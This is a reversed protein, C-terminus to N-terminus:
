RILSVHGTVLVRQDNATKKFEIRWTYVGDQALKQGAGYTGDWGISDDHSEWIIEGWRNFILLEFDYPDYGSTFIAQFYENFSDGDPTFSNPVYFILEEVVTIVMRATDTCGLPSYAILEVQYGGEDIPFEYTPNEITTSSLDDGFTWVYNDAGVSTNEFMVETDITTLQNSSPVFSAIPTEEVYIYDTYTVSSVCGTGSTTTLTVDYTGSNQFTYTVDGCGNLTEGNITWVCNTFGSVSASTNTFTVTLPECGSLIDGVFSVIPAPEVTITIDDTSICGENDATVTYTTTVVPDFPGVPVVPDWVTPVGLPNDAVITVFDGECVVQDPGADIPAPVALITIEHTVLIQNGCDDTVSYTRTIKELNCINGDSVDSVWVVVPNATCNDLEDIVVLPNPVPVDNSGPVSIPAPDSATPPTVDNVIISQDVTIQNGCDDMISYTRTITEPCSLGDSVDGVWAVTPSATCNDAETTIDLVDWAPVDGICEVNVNAPAVGTPNTIDNVIILQDVTIQNGCDDTISYTRTITEPCSLGDSVDGVFAVTPTVTCNDAETTIDLINSVPVDGICEVNVNAPAVGTPNTVDNVTILQDVTIQNGCDDTISYTRTITEPCSLGDSVDGIFAVIPNATCNDAETTIDLINSVPVDGICEVNVNAPALGTPNTVDNVTILQDVTIQNGCDDTISYTRTITEPCSLGDSVDGVFAVTPNATCNDAETTIDLINPVPVDGICEVNANAPAVGTPNTVDNVIILQDVTIQNGCDDTISYTRTITEPCSLGDSVDGEFAVIPNATCNDAETTINLVNPVPVDGICEVNVNAPAVGTPNTVDLVTILQTVLVVNGCLDTISYTRTITEPCTLGDSVDSVFAVVPVGQNDAEDIILLPDAAPVDGICEVNVAAPATGTPLIPDTIVVLHTVNITNGCDDTISYIRTITEPCPNNDSVESVFAVVPNVTCNDAEDIVVLPDVAPAPGGPVTATAPNSATPLTTDDVTITQTVTANNGCADTFTWTRTITGGCAGGTLAGDAGTVTGAGDCNDTWGLDTMAPVDGTCEVTLDAPPVAFVPVQTDQVTITQTVTANNGCADTFTWTRTITEPCTLGDSLDVGTVTGPADCNDTYGLDIMAPVDGVCQVAVAAPTGAIVPVQTDQVTITQTVTASVNGCADTHFWSRTITEPCTLGDSVDAGTVTGAADCNDTFGLDTMVPVDGICQVAVAAPPANMIPATIDMVTITQTVFIFNGCDDTVRYRRLITEPCTLGDSTDDEWTVVPLAGNDSEDTVVTPDTAPVDGICEVNAPLPDSATPIILDGVTFMQTVLIQNGCADTVSYTRTIIEPCVGGDSVDGVWAVVPIGCNDAEDTVVTPDAAPPAGGAGPLNSATPPTTDDVTITQTVTANNGCADTYTWTRTITGGCPGGILAGDAGTVDGAGDCNDTWGLDTMAPVDGVCEVTVDAPPATFVPVQTDQITITQTVIANNGCADTFTWTRTITEPCTLGDSVDAGTVTGPADCNDTYGLDIMAPVDGSCQVAIAAPTGAIVPAQTDNVTITQNVTTAVNGCADTWTWSRTITEPCTLGDSVDVGVVTGAPDCNDTYGLNTMAPVDGSCQVAVAAPPANMVPVTVDMVTITQTVFIFNGCDDTVRYRRLITEPCALGDSTDDEWTVTPLAGNDAEDIVVTPDTAPVDVQCEVNVAVPDSATPLVADGVTYIETVLIQNACADTVSYTRTIIEPCNGGDSADSVWAVIPIGCNDAEDMVVTPDPPPPNGTQGPLNSATPPTTDDVTITQTVTAVNGCADTYTWTRTITGGCPDTLAGDVGTVNGAGDCNDTWGLDTMVPVDGICEVTLNAPPAAFVPVQTDQITITQTETAVNGCADTVTWTRTITEPCTLGDSVDAGVVNGAADCNDTYNLNIMAPVDGACQVAVAAPVGSFVPAQTDDIIITQTVTAAVNGCGDIWTWSRTITEPCSLGDSVDVGAVTGAPDCNDTYGLNIMAPVDGSCQVAVAAPPANMVPVQTDNVTIIQTETDTNGCGDTYTWTRTITGGCNGGILPGDSGAVSGAGDCNDTWALNVMAPIAGCQVTIAAPPAVLVPPTVDGIIILQQVDTFNGCDDTIRYTRTITEPCNLGDSVDGQYTVVPNCPSAEDTVVLPDAAPAGGSCEVNINPPNSGTPMTTVCCTYPPSTLFSCNAPLAVQETFVVNTTVDYTGMTWEGDGLSGCPAGPVYTTYNPPTGEWFLNPLVYIEIVSNQNYTIGAAALDTEDITINFGTGTMPGQLLIQVGDVWIAVYWDDDVSIGAPDPYCYGAGTVTLDFSTANGGVTNAPITTNGANNVGGYPSDVAVPDAVTTTVDYTIPGLAGGTSCCDPGGAVGIYDITFDENGGVCTNAPWANPDPTITFVTGIDLLDCDNQPSIDWQCTGANWTVDVVDSAQTAIQPYVTVSHIGTSIVQGTEDCVITWPLDINIPTCFFTNDLTLQVSYDACNGITSVINGGPTNITITSSSIDINVAFIESISAGFNGTVPGGIVGGLQDEIQFFGGVGNYGDGWSDSVVFEFINGEINPDLSVNVNFGAGNTGPGGSAVVNGTLVSTVVWTNENAFASGYNGVVNFIITGNCGTNAVDFDYLQGGCADPAGTAVSAYDPCSSCIGAYVQIDVSQVCGADDTVIVTYTGSTLGAFASVGANNNNTYVVNGLDDEWVYDYPATGGQGTVTASGDADGPCTEDVVTTLPVDCCVMYAPLTSADDDACAISAWSGSEGDGTTNITISLDAGPTCAASVTLDFCFMWSLGAGQCNDGFNNGPNGDGDNDYYFGAGYNTATATSTTGGPYYAWTGAGDCSAAPVINTVTGDWGPGFALQVGHLWNTNQQDWETIEYCFTVVDGPSYSGNTPLPTASLNSAVLCDNCDIDSDVTITFNNDTAAATGGSVQIYFVDGPTTQTITLTGNGSGNVNMCGSPALNACTGTWVGISANPFGSININLITGSAILTYWTDLAPAAMDGGGSCNTIYNYPNAGTAGLTSQGALTVPAGDQLGGICPGPAPMTGMGTATICDDNVPQAFVGVSLLLFSFLTILKM